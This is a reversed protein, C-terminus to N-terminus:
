KEWVAWPAHGKNWLDELLRKDRLTDMAQWFGNHNYAQLNGERALTELPAQEWVTEDNKLYDFIGPELVFFGGNIRANINDVKEAFGKVMTGDSDLMGFRGPPTIATITAKHGHAKHFAILKTIDLDSVGDGYTLCFTEDGLYKRVRMIRGGTQTDQGTDALTVRWDEAHNNHITLEGTKLHVTIDSQHQFYHTFYDRILNGKYGLCIVFDKVGHHAYMQMIHWLIPKGGIEAMPKPIRDTEESLRTGLGGALIVAKM